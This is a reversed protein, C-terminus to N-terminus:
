EISKKLMEWQNYANSTTAVKSALNEDYKIQGFVDKWEPKILMLMYVLLGLIKSPKKEFNNKENIINMYDYLSYIPSDQPCIIGYINNDIISNIVTCINGAYIVSRGKNVALKPYFKPFKAYMEKAVEMFLTNGEYFVSPIRLYSVKFCDNELKRFAEEGILKSKGYNSDPNCATNAYIIGGDKSMSPKMGYVAMTSFVITHKTGDEFAKRAVDASLDGNIAFYQSKTVGPRPIVGAIHILVDYDFTKQKWETGFLSIKDIGGFIHELSEIIRLCLEGKDGTIGIKM